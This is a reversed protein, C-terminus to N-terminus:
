RGSSLTRILANIKACLKHSQEYFDNFDKESLYEQDKSIYLATVVEELSGIAIKLFRTFDKDSKKDSGEAINLAISVVARRLQSTLGFQENSPFKKTILYIQSSFKRAEQWIELKEFRFYM